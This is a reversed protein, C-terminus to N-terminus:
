RYGLVHASDSDSRFQLRPCVRTETASSSSPSIFLLVFADRRTLHLFSGSPVPVHTTPFIGLLFLRTNTNPRESRQRRPKTTTAPDMPAETSIRSPASSAKTPATAELSEVAHLVM